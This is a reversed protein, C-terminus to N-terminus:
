SARNPPFGRTPRALMFRPSSSSQTKVAFYNNSTRPSFLLSSSTSAVNTSPRTVNSLASLLWLASLALRLHASLLHNPLLMSICLLTKLHLRAPYQFCRCLLDFDDLRTVVDDHRHRVQVPCLDISVTQM